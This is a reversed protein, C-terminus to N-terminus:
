QAPETEPTPVPEPEKQMDRCLIRLFRMVNEENGNNIVVCLYGDAAYAYQILGPVKEQPIGCLHTEGTETNRRWGQQLSVGAQDFIAMLELDNELPVLTGDAANALFQERPLLYVDGEGATIYTVLQMPGYMNDDALVRCSIEEMDPMENERITELYKQLGGTQDMYGYVYFEVKKEPPVRYATMTFVLDVLGFALVGILLYKWWSYAFHQRLTRANVPTKM